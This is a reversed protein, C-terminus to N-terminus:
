AFVGGANNYAQEMQAMTRVPQGYPSGPLSAWEKACKRIADGFRGAYVDGLAGRRRILRAACEDQSAPSFDPLGARYEDWTSALIQYAGAATSQYGSRIVAVRPHDAYSEFLGGGFLMRYGNDGATGEAYRIARLFARLNSDATDIQTPMDMVEDIVDAAETPLMGARYAAFGAAGIVVLGGVLAARM